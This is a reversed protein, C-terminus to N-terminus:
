RRDEEVRGPGEVVGMWRDLTRAVALTDSWPVLPSELEGARIRHMVEQAQLTYGDGPLQTVLEESTETPAGEGPDGLGGRVVTIVEPKVVNGIEIRGDECYV